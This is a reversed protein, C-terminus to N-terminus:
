AGTRAAVVQRVQDLRVSQGGVQLMPVQGTLDVGDVRGRLETSVNVARGDGDTATVTITYSGPPQAQGNADRGDWTFTQRGADLQREGQYVVAGGSNRIVVNASAAGAADLAWEARGGDLQASRGEAIIDKGVYTLAANSQSIQQLSLLADLTENSKLMQEVQAFQVLQATFQNTDLPDLPSQNQLQTTLLQLFTQFNNAIGSSTSGAGSPSTGGGVFTQTSSFVTTM